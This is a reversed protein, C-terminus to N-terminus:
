PRADIGELFRTVRPIDARTSLDLVPEDSLVVELEMGRGDIAHQVAQTLEKEGRSSVPVCRCADFIGATFLWCNMSAYVRGGTSAAASVPDATMRRLMGREDVEVAGFRSVKGAAVNGRATLSDRSFAVMAPETRRQLEALASAPYYNDSNLVVFSGGVAFKEAALVADATGLPTEQIAFRARIRSPPSKVEYYDRVADHEPGIVLCAEAFGADALASLVYDLFPRGVPIMAKVGSDAVAASAADLEASADAARMRTGLGRALIVAKTTSRYSM